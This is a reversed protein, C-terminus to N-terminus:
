DLTIDYGKYKEIKNIIAENGKSILVEIEEDNDNTSYQTRTKLDDIIKDVDLLYFDGNIDQYIGAYDLTTKNINIQIYSKNKM